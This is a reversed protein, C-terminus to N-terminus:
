EPTVVPISGSPEASWREGAAMDVTDALFGSIIEADQDERISNMVFRARSRIRDLAVRGSQGWVLYDPADKSFVGTERIAGYRLQMMAEEYLMAFDERAATFAYFDVAVDADFLAAFSAADFDASIVDGGGEFGPFVLKALSLLENSVLPFQQSLLDSSLIQNRERQRAYDWPREWEPVGALQAAPFYDAAHALEHYLTRAIEYQLEEMRLTERSHYPIVGGSVVPLGDLMYRWRTFFSLDNGAPLTSPEFLTAREAPTLALIRPRLYLAGTGAHFFSSSIDESIVIGTVSRFLKVFDRNDEDLRLFEEFRRGMWDHSVVVRDMIDAIEPSEKYMGTLPLKLFSCTTDSFIQNSYICYVLDEHFPGDAVFPHVRALRHSFLQRYDRSLEEAREVLVIVVDSALEEGGSDSVSVKFLIASDNGIDPATFHILRPDGPDRFFEVEPTNLSEWFVNKGQLSDDLWARLSVEQGMLVSRDLKINVLSESAVVSFSFEHEATEGDDFRIDSRFRYYGVGAPVFSVLKSAPGPLEVEPGSLQVWSVSAISKLDNMVAMVVTENLSIESDAEIVQFDAPPLGPKISNHYRPLPDPKNAPGSGDCAVLTLGIVLLLLRRLGHVLLGCAAM